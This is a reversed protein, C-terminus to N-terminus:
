RHMPKFFANLLFMPEGSSGFGQRMRTRFKETLREETNNPFQEALQLYRLCFVSFLESSYLREENIGLTQKPDTRYSSLMDM